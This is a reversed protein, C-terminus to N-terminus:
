VTSFIFPAVYTFIVTKLATSCDSCVPSDYLMETARPATIILRSWLLGAELQSSFTHTQLSTSQIDNGSFRFSIDRQARVIQCIANIFCDGFHSAVEVHNQVEKCPDCRYAYTDSSSRVHETIRHIEGASPQSEHLATVHTSTAKPFDTQSNNIEAKALHVYTGYGKRNKIISKVPSRPILAKFVM